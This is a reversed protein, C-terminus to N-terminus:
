NLYADYLNCFYESIIMFISIQLITIFNYFYITIKTVIALKRVFEVCLNIDYTNFYMHFTRFLKMGVRTENM